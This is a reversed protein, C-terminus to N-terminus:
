IVLYNSEGVRLVYWTGPLDPLLIVLYKTHGVRVWGTETDYM